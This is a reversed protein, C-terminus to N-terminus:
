INSVYKVQWKYDSKKETILKHESFPKDMNQSFAGTTMLARIIVTANLQFTPLIKRELSLSTVSLEEENICSHVSCGSFIEKENIKFVQVGIGLSVQGSCRERATQM